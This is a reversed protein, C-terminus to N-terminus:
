HEACPRSSVRSPIDQEGVFGLRRAKSLRCFELGLSRPTGPDSAPSRRGLPHEVVDLGQPNAIGLAGGDVPAVGGSAFWLGDGGGGKQEGRRFWLPSVM